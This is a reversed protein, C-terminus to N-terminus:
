LLLDTTTGTYRYTCHLRHQQTHVILLRCSETNALWNYLATLHPPAAFAPYRTVRHQGPALLGPRGNNVPQSHLYYPLQLSRPLVATPQAM